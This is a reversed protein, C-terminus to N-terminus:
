TAPLDSDVRPILTTLFKSEKKKRAQTQKSLITKSPLKPCAAANAANKKWQKIAETQKSTFQLSMDDCGCPDLGTLFVLVSTAVQSGCRKFYGPKGGALPGSQLAQQLLEFIAQGGARRGELELDPYRRLIAKWEIVCNKTAQLVNTQYTLPNALATTSLSFAVRNNKVRKLLHQLEHHEESEEEDSIGRERTNSTEISQRDLNGFGCDVIFAEESEVHETNNDISDVLALCTNEMCTPAELQDPIELKTHKRRRANYKPLRGDTPGGRGRFVRRNHDM